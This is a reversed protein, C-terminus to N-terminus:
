FHIASAVHAILYLIGASFIVIVLYCATRLMQKRLTEGRLTNGHMKNKNNFKKKVRYYELEAYEGCHNCTILFIVTLITGFVLFGSGASVSGNVAHIIVAAVFALAYLGVTFAILTNGITHLGKRKFWFGHFLCAACNYDEMVEELPRELRKSNFNYGCRCMGDTINNATECIPCMMGIGGSSGNHKIILSYGVEKSVTNCYWTHNKDLGSKTQFVYNAVAVGRPLPVRVRCVGRREVISQTRGYRCTVATSIICGWLWVSCRAASGPEPHSLM